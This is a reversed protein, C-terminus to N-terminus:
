NKGSPPGELRSDDTIVFQRSLMKLLNMLDFSLRQGMNLFGNFIGITDTVCKEHAMADPFDAGLAKLRIVMGDPTEELRACSWSPDFRYIFAAHTQSGVFVVGALDHKELVARIEALAADNKPDPM